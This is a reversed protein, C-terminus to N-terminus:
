TRITKFIPIMLMLSTKQKWRRNASSINTPPTFINGKVSGGFHLRRFKELSKSPNLTLELKELVEVLEPPMSLHRSDCCRDNWHQFVRKRGSIILFIAWSISEAHDPPNLTHYLPLIETEMKTLPHFNPIFPSFGIGAPFKELPLQTLIIHARKVVWCKSLDKTLSIATGPVGLFSTPGLNGPVPDHLEISIEVVQNLEPDQQIEKVAKLASVAGRSVGFLYVYIKGSAGIDKLHRKLDSIFKDCRDNTGLATVMKVYNVKDEKVSCGPYGWYQIGQKQYWASEKGIPYGPSGLFSKEYADVQQDLKALLDGSGGFHAVFIPIKKEETEEPQRM